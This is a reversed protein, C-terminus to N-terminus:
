RLANSTTKWLSTPLLWFSITAKESNSAFWMVPTTLSTRTTARGGVMLDGDAGGDIHDNGEHGYLADTGSTGTLVDDGATGDLPTYFQLILEESASEGRGNTITFLPLDMSDWDMDLPVIGSFTSTEPDYSLWEPLDPSPTIVETPDFPRAPVVFSFAQGRLATEYDYNTGGLPVRDVEALINWVTGDSFEIEEITPALTLTDHNIQLVSGNIVAYYDGNGYRGVRVDAQSIGAGLKLTDTEGSVNDTDIIQDSGDGLEYLYVDAGAGGQLTDYGEGGILTDAGDGGLLTDDDAGGILTDAGAGGQLTDDGAGGILTDAGDGGDINDWGAGGTLVNAASNGILVSNEFSNGTGNIAATGTLILSEVDDPLTYDVSSFITDFGGSQPTNEVVSDGASDVYYTDNGAGGMMTDNGAGGDLVNDSSNGIMTNDLANGQAGAALASYDLEIREINDAMVATTGVGTWEITDTGEGALEVVADINSNLIYRDDGAGGVLRSGAAAFQASMTNADGNGIIEVYGTATSIYSSVGNGWAYTGNLSSQLTVIAGPSLVEWTDGPNDIVFTVENKLGSIGKDTWTWIMQDAGAGGDIITSSVGAVDLVNDLSNGVYSNPNYTDFWAGRVVMREVNDPLVDSREWTHMTDYGGNAYEVINAINYYDDDGLGGYATDDGYDGGTHDDYYGSIVNNGANGILINADRNGTANINLVGTLTINEVNGPLTYSVSSYVTDTGGNVAEVIVDQSNDVTYVDNGTTGTLTNALGPPVTRTAIDAATWVAGNGGDFEIREIKEDDSAFYNAVTIQQNSADIVIILNIGDQYLTVDQPLIGTGLRLTDTGGGAANPTEFITDGGDGRDYLYLDDGQGGYLQDNGTGGRLTDNGAEQQDNPSEGSWLGGYGYLHDDGAGGDLSDNGTGGIITDDGAGGLLVDDGGRGNINDTGAGGDITDAIVFGGIVDAGSTSALVRTHLDEYTWITGDSFQFFGVPTQDPGTLFGQIQLQTSSDIKVYLDNGVTHFQINEPTIGDTFEVVSNTAQGAVDNFIIDSGSGAGFLYRNVGAGGFLQDNGAGGDFVDDGADGYLVDIGAGGTLTDAGAGGHLQDNDDGGDLVDDGADGYLVDAGTGGALTDVGDGGHLQDAGDGGDLVDDGADGYLVDAGAGGTLTDADDGGSLQDNGDGGDLVDDGADGFLVDAGTGGTLTDAGDGGSMQDDGDGGDLTDNGGNGWLLDNGAGGSIFDNGHFAADLQSTDADGILSDDGDGGYLTDSGGGGFITDNGAGGDLSDNGQLAGAIDTGDGYISDAGDGGLVIDNGGDGSLVDDGAGGDLYDNGNRTTAFGNDGRIVDNGDGGLLTDDGDDGFMTDNGAGGDLYDSDTDTLDAAVDGQGRGSLEDNGIGGFLIDNGGGGRLIDDGDGGDLTDNGNKVATSSVAATLDVGPVWHILADGDIQDNGDGGELIDNDAGGNLVDNGAGGFVTDNGEGALVIDSGAGADIFDDGSPATNPDLPSWQPASIAIKGDQTADGTAAGGDTRYIYWDQGSAVVSAGLRALDEDFRQQESKGDADITTRLARMDATESGDIILDNGDGGYLEDNGAGGLILDNGTGGDLIDNGAGGDLGDNGALGSFTDDGGTNGTAGFLDNNDTLGTTQVPVVVGGLQIGLSNNTWGQVLITSGTAVHTITLTQSSLSPDATIIFEGDLSQWTKDGLRAGIALPVYNIEISGQGDSDVIKDVCGPAAQFDDTLFNYRDTGTGGELYDSGVGGELYDNGSGGYLHDMGSGGRLTDNDDEGYLWDWGNGGSLVDDGKGGRYNDVGDTGSRTDAGDTGILTHSQAAQYSDQLLAEATAIYDGTLGALSPMYRGLAAMTNVTGVAGVAAARITARDMDYWFQNDQYRQANVDTVISLDGFFQEIVHTGNEGVPLSQMFANIADGLNGGFMSPAALDQDLVSAYIKVIGVQVGAAAVIDTARVYNIIDAGAGGNPILAAAGYANFTEAHLHYFAATIQALSGGLSHGTISVTAGIARAMELARAVLAMADREQQNIALIAMQGDTTLLDKIWDAPETGCHAVVYQNTIPNYYIGGLYGTDNPPSVEVLYFNTGAVLTTGPTPHKYIDAALRAYVDESITM